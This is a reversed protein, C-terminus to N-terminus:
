TNDQKCHTKFSCYDCLKSPCKKFLVDTETDNILEKLESIYNDLFQRELVLSNESNEHEVYVYSIVIRDITPYRKFYYIGYFMLQEYTQWKQDKFKGTKWDNIHLTKVKKKIRVKM